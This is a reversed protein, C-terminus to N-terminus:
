LYAGREGLDTQVAMEADFHKCAALTEDIVGKGINLLLANTLRVAPLM